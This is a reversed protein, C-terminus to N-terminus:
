LTRAANVKALKFPPGWSKVQLFKMAPMNPGIGKGTWLVDNEDPYHLTATCGPRHGRKAAGVKALHEFESQQMALLHELNIDQNHYKPLSFSQPETEGMM